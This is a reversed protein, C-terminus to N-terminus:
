NNVIIDLGGDESLRLALGGLMAEVGAVRTEVVKNQVPNTSTSSMSSDVTVKTAGNAIGDLKTKDAASMMGSASQTADTSIVEEIAAAAAGAVESTLAQARELARKLQGLNPLKSQDYSM